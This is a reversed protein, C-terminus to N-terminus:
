FDIDLEELAAKIAEPSNDELAEMAEWKERNWVEAKNGSGVIVVEKNLNAKQRLKEPVLVRGQSDIECECANSLFFRRIQRIKAKSGSQSQLNENIKEWEEESYMNLCEDPSITIFFNSGLSDRLKSPVILRGKSDINHNYTGLMSKSV